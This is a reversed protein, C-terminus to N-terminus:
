TPSVAPGRPLRRRITLLRPSPIVDYTPDFVPPVLDAGAHRRHLCGLLLTSGAGVDIANFRNLYTAGRDRLNAYGNSSLRWTSDVFFDPVSPIRM